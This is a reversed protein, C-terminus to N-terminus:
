PQKARASRRSRVGIYLTRVGLFLLIFAFGIRLWEGQVYTAISAGIFAGLIAGAGLLTGARWDTLGPKTLRIAGLLAVPVMVALSTGNAFQQAYGFGVVLIPVLIVGGGIGFLASLVGMALGAAFYVAVATLTLPPLESVNELPQPHPFFLLRIAMLVLLVGFALQLTANKLRQVVIAGVWAGILGGIVIFLGPLWAVQGKAAYTLAGAIGSMFVLVLSTAGANKQAMKRVGTLYPILIIGGGVGMLGSFAGVGVGVGVDRPASQRLQKM